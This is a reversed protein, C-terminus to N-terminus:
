IFVQRYDSPRQQNSLQFLQCDATMSATFQPDGYSVIHHGNMRIPSWTICLPALNETVRSKSISPVEGRIDIYGLLAYPLPLPAIRIPCGKSLGGTNYIAYLPQPGYFLNQVLAWQITGSYIQWLSWIWYNLLLQLATIIKCDRFYFGWSPHILFKAFRSSSCLIINLCSIALSLGSGMLWDRRSRVLVSISMKCNM